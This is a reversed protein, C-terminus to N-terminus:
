EEDGLNTMYVLGYKERESKEYLVNECLIYFLFFLYKSFLVACVALWLKEKDIM